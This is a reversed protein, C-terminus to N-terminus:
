AIADHHSEVADLLSDLSFRREAPDRGAQGLDLLGTVQNLVFTESLTPFVGSVVAIKM